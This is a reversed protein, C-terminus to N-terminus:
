KNRYPSPSGPAWAAARKPSPVAVLPLYIVTKFPVKSKHHPTKKSAKVIEVLIINRAIRQSVSIIEDETNGSAIPISPQLFPIMLLKVLRLRIVLSRACRKFFPPNEAHIPSHFVAHRLKDLRVATTKKYRDIM